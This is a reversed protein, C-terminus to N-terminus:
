PSNLCDGVPASDPPWAAESDLGVGNLGVSYLGVSPLGVGLCLVVQVLEEARSHRSRDGHHVIDLSSFLKLWNPIVLV